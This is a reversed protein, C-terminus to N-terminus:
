LWFRHSYFFILSTGLCNAWMQHYSINRHSHHDIAYELMKDLVAVFNRGDTESYISFKNRKKNSVWKRMQKAKQHTKKKGIFQNAVFNQSCVSIIFHFAWRSCLWSKLRSYHAKASYSMSVFSKDDLKLKTILAMESIEESRECIESVWKM